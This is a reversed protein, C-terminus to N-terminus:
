LAKGASAVALGELSLYKRSADLIHEATIANVKAAYNQLHDFGLDFRQMNLLSIAVGMNSELSLPLSGILYSKTDNLEAETVVERLYHKIEKKILEIAKDLKSPNVGANFEWAGPGQGSNL